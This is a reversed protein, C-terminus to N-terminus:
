IGTPLDVFTFDLGFRAALLAGLAKVGVIETAYHGGYLVNVGLNQADYFHAHSTEGTVITDCGLAVAEDFYGTGSGSLIAVKSSREPGYAQALRPAGVYQAFRDVIEAFAVEGDPVAITGLKTGQSQAWWDVVTLGLLRALEANNGVAPHADLALHAAYLNLDNEIYYRVLSGFGGRLPRAPGWFIGHHVLLLDGAEAVAAQACPLQADVTAVVRQVEARGEVQLGQPGYDKIAHINLYADLFDVLETRLM